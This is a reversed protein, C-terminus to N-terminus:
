SGESSRARKDRDAVGYNIRWGDQTGQSKQCCGPVALVRRGTYETSDVKFPLTENAYASGDDDMNTINIQLVETDDDDAPILHDFTVGHYDIQNLPKAGEMVWGLYQDRIVLDGPIM